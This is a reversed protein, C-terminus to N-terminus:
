SHDYSVVSRLWGSFVDQFVEEAGEELNFKELRQELFEKLGKPPGDYAEIWGKFERLCAVLVLREGLGFRVGM